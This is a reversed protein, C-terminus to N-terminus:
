NLSMALKEGDIMQRKLFMVVTNYKHDVLKNDLQGIIYPYTFLYEEPSNM